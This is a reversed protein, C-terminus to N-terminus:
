SQRGLRSRYRATALAGRAHRYGAVPLVILTSPPSCTTGNGDPTRGAPATDIGSGRASRGPGRIEAPWDELRGDRGVPFSKGSFNGSPCDSSLDKHLYINSRRFPRVAAKGMHLFNYAAVQEDAPARTRGCVRAAGQFVPVARSIARRCRHRLTGAPVIPLSSSRQM